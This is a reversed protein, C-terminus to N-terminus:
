RKNSRNRPHRMFLPDPAPGLRPAKPQEVTTQVTPPPPETDDEDRPPAKLDPVGGLRPAPVSKDRKSKPALSLFHGEAMRDRVVLDVIESNVEDQGAGYAYVLAYDCIQSVRRPLGGTARFIGAMAGPTFIAPNAGAAELRHAIMGEVAELDMAPIHYDASVRQAFPLLEPRSLTERLGPQGFLVLQLLSDSDANINTFLRLEELTEISLNQAEDFILLTRRGAQFESILFSQFQAHLRVYGIEPNSEQGLALLVWHLLEARGGGATSVLGASVDPGINRLLHRLLSTKGTGVEGTIVTIPAGSMLGYDLMTYAQRHADSWYLYEPDPQSSFPRENMGFHSLVIERGQADVSM